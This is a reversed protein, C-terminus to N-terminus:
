YWNLNIIPRKLKRVKRFLKDIPIELDPIRKEHTEVFIYDIRNLIPAELLANLVAVESGEIDMKIVGIDTNLDALFRVFDIQQVEIANNLDINTKDAFTSTSQSSTIQDSEFDNHRYMSITSDEVGVAAEVVEVNNISILNKRLQEATWPDPEFAYVTSAQKAMIKSIEGINAGLDICLKGESAALAAQLDAMSASPTHRRHIKRFKLGIKGPLHGLFFATTKRYQKKLSSAM